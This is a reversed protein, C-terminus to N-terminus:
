KTENESKRLIFLKNDDSWVEIGGWDVQLDDNYREAEEYDEPNGYSVDNPIDDYDLAYAEIKRTNFAMLGDYNAILSINSDSMKQCIEEFQKVLERQDDDLAILKNVGDRQYETGDENVVSYTNYSLAEEKTDYVKCNKPFEDTRFINSSYDYYFKDLELEYQAPVKCAEDFVWYKTSPRSKIGSIINNMVTCREGKNLVYSCRTAPTNSEYDAVKDFAKDYDELVGTTGDPKQYTTRSTYLDHNGEHHDYKFDTRLWKVEQLKRDVFVFGCENTFVSLSDNREM